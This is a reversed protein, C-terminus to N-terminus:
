AEMGDVLVAKLGDSSVGGESGEQEEEGGQAADNMRGLNPSRVLGLFLDM